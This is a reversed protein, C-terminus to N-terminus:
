HHQRNALISKLGMLQYQVLRDISIYTESANFVQERTVSQIRACWKRIGVFDFAKQELLYPFGPPFAPDHHGMVVPLGCALYERVKLSTAEKLDNRDLGFSAIGVDCEAYLALLNERPLSGHFIVNKYRALNRREEDPLEGCLHLEFDPQEAVFSQLVRDLGQWRPFSGSAFVLKIRRSSFLPTSRNQPGYRRASIANFTVIGPMQGGARRREYDLIENTVAFLGSFRRLLKPGFAIETILRPDKAVWLEPVEKTHHESVVNHFKPLLMFSIPDCLPYRLIIGKYTTYIKRLEKIQQIRCSLKGRGDVHQVFFKGRRDAEGTSLWIVDMDVGTLRASEAQEFLKSEIGRSRQLVLSVYAYNSREIM